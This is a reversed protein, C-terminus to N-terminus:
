SPRWGSGSAASGAGGTLRRTGRQYATRLRGLAPHRKSAQLLAYRVPMERMLRLQRRYEAEARPREAMRRLLEALADVGETLLDAESPQPYGADDAPSEPQDPVLEALDGVVDFGRASLKEALERSRAVAFERGKRDLRLSTGNRGALVQQAFVEKVVRPYPGPIPLTDGLAANVRRLLEAQEARLSLNGRGVRTDFSDPDLGVLGAFRSWLASPDAGPQPVTVVHVQSPPLSGGWRDLVGAYDQVTWFWSRGTGDAIIRDVFAPLTRTARHKVHEQWEAPIQRLLDRATLVIHVETDPGFAAVARHAQDRTAGAFLEHSVLADGPWAEVEDVIRAWMGLARPPHEPRGALGRVDLTAFYHDAFREQPLLLGQARATERGAWLINQVFTTGTKPSGVHLFVRRTVAVM